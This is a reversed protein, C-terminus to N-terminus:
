IDDIEGIVDFEGKEKYFIWLFVLCVINIGFFIFFTAKTANELLIPFIFSVFLCFAWNLANMLSTAKERVSSSFTENIIVWFLTGPSVEFGLHFLMIAAFSTWGLVTGSAVLFVIALMFLSVAMMVLGSILLPKRGFRDVFFLSIFTAVFNWFGVVITLIGSLSKLGAKDFLTPMYFIIGNIGTLQLSVALMIGIVLARKEDYFLSKWGRKQVKISEFDQISSSRRRREKWFTSEPMKFLSVYLLILGPIASIGLMTRWSLMKMDYRPYQLFYGTIYAIFIGFTIAVQFLSSLAGRRHEPAMESVYMPCIVTFIGIGFGLISRFIILFPINPSVAMTLSSIVTLLSTFIVTRKRGFRDALYGCVLAGITGGAVM